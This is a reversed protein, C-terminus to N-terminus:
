ILLLRDFHGLPRATHNESLTRSAGPEIGPQAGKKKDEPQIVVGRTLEVV